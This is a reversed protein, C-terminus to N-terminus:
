PDACAAVYHPLLGSWGRENRERWAPGRSGLREWGRHEIEVRTSGGDGARFSVEVETADARDTRIHWLYALRVPPEWVRVEGWDIEAGASTREFIRGGVRPELVVDVDREGSVTHGSPWWVSTLSTWVAFARDVDCAVVFSLRLPDTV